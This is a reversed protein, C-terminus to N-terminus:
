KLIWKEKLISTSCGRLKSSVRTQDRNKLKKKIVYNILNVVNWNDTEDVNVLTKVLFQIKALGFLFSILEVFWTLSSVIFQFAM